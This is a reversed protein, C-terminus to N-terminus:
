SITAWTWKNDTPSYMAVRVDKDSDTVFTYSNSAVSRSGLEKVLTVEEPTDTRYWVRSPVEGAITNWLKGDKGIATLQEGTSIASADGGGEKKLAVAPPRGLDEWKYPYAATSRTIRWAHGDPTRVFGRILGDRYSVVGLSNLVPRDQPLNPPSGWYNWSWQGESSKDVGYVVNRNSITLPSAVDRFSMGLGITKDLLGDEPPLAGLDDTTWQGNGYRYQWLRQNSDRVVVVPLGDRTAETGVADVFNGAGHPRAFKSWSVDAGDHVFEWLHGDQGIVYARVGHWVGVAGAGARIETSPGGNKMSPTGRYSKTWGSGSQEFEWMKGRSDVAFEVPRKTGGADVVTALGVQQEFDVDSGASAPTSPAALCATLVALM